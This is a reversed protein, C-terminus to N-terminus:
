ERNSELLIEEKPIGLELNSEDIIKIIKKLVNQKVILWEEWKITISYSYILINMSYEDIEDLYVFLNSKVGLIDKTDFLGNEFTQKMKILYKLKNDNVIDPNELLMERIEFLVRDIEVTDYTYKIRLHFKIRRGIMRKSWNKIYESAIKSNPITVLANDFTRIRTAALGIETVFGEVDKTEIWDGIHFADEGVLRISDFFNTLTDKASLGIVVGGVGLSTILGTLDVGMKSLIVFVIILGILIKIINLFLNFLERRVEQQKKIKLSLSIHLMFKIIEYVWWSVIFVYMVYFFFEMDEDVTFVSISKKLLMASILYRFPKIIYKLRYFLIKYVYKKRHKYLKYQVFNKIPHEFIYSILFISSLLAMSVAIHGPTTSIFGTLKIVNEPM